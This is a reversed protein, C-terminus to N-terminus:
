EASAAYREVGDVVRRGREVRGRHELHQLLIESADGPQEFASGDSHRAEFFAGDHEGFLGLRNLQAQELRVDVPTCTATAVPEASSVSATPARTATRRRGPSTTETEPSSPEPLVVKTRPAHRASPTVAGTALGVKVM